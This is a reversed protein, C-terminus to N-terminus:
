RQESQEALAKMGRHGLETLKLVGQKDTWVLASSGMAARLSPGIPEHDEDFQEATVSEGTNLLYQLAKVVPHNFESM